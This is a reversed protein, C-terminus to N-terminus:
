SLWRPFSRLTSMACVGARVSARVLTENYLVGANCHSVCCGQRLRAGANYLDVIFLSRDNFQLKDREHGNGQHADTDVVM